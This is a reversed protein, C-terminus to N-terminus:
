LSSPRHHVFYYWWQLPNALRQRPTEARTESAVVVREEGQIVAMQENPKKMRLATRASDEIYQDSMVYSLLEVSELQKKSLGQKQKELDSMEQRLDADRSFTRINAFALFGVGLFLIIVLISSQWWTNKHAM